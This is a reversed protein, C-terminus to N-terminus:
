RNPAHRRRRGAWGALAGLACLAWWQLSGGGHGGSSGSGALGSGAPAPAPDTATLVFQASAPRNAGDLASVTLTTTGAQGLAPTVILTCTLVSMGCGAALSVGPAGSTALVPPVLAPNSSAISFHVAGTASVTFSQAATSASGSSSVDALATITPGPVTSLAGLADVRGYGFVEDPASAGLVTAGSELATTIQAVSLSPFASRLLAAVAGANPVAASTGYFNGDPFIESAFYTGAADVPVGDPAVLTPALLQAPAPFEVTLPGSSSYPEIADGVGDSGNVAGIALVGAAMAQPTLEGGPTAVSFSTLGDGGAWLKLFRGATSGTPSAVVVTYTGPALTVTQVIQDTTAGNTSM